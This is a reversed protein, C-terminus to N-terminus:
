DNGVEGIFLRSVAFFCTLGVLSDLNDTKNNNNNKM